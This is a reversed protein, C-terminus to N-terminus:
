SIKFNNETATFVELTQKYCLVSVTFYIVTSRHSSHIVAHILGFKHVMLINFPSRVTLQIMNERLSRKLARKLSQYRRHHHRQATEYITVLTNSSAAADMKLTSIFRTPLAKGQKPFHEDPQSPLRKYESGPGERYM